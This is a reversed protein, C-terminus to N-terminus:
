KGLVKALTSELALKALKSEVNEQKGIEGQATNLTTHGKGPAAYDKAYIDKGENYHPDNKEQVKPVAIVSEKNEQSGIEGKETKLDTNGTGAANAKNNAVTYDKDSYGLVQTPKPNTQDAGAQKALYQALKQAAQKGEQVEHIIGEADRKIEGADPVNETNALEVITNAIEEIKEAPLNEAANLGEEGMAHTVANADMKEAEENAYKVVGAEKMFGQQGVVYNYNVFDREQANM